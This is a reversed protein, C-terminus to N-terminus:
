EGKKIPKNKNIIHQVFRVKIISRLLSIAAKLVTIVRVKIKLDFKLIPKSSDFDADVSLKTNRESFRMKSMLFSLAPFTISCIGGYELATKAADDCAAVIKLNFRKVKVTKLLEVAKLLMPKLLEWLESVTEKLGKEEIVKAIIIKDKEESKLQKKTSDKETKDKQKKLPLKFRFCWFGLRMLLKGDVKLYFSIHSFLILLILATISAIIILATM